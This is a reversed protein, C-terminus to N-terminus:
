AAVDIYIRGPLEGVRYGVVDDLGLVITVVGEFDGTIAWAELMPYNVTMARPQTAVGADTHAQAPELRIQLFRRGPVNAPEGSGDKVPQDVYAVHYGPIKGVIDLVVRDYGAEPHQASRVGVIRPVPPVSVDHRVTTPGSTWEAGPRPTATPAPGGGGGNQPPTSSITPAASPAPSSPDPDPSGCAATSLVLALTALGIALKM